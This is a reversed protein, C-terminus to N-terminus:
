PLDPVAPRGGGASRVTAGSPLVIVASVRDAVSRNRLSKRPLSIEGPSSPYSAARETHFAATSRRGASIARAASAPSTMVATRKARSCPRGTLMRPPPCEAAPKATASPASISSRDPMLDTLTSGAARVATAPGPASHLWSSAAAASHPSAVVPPTTPEVPMAPSVSPPPMPQSSRSAPSVHSLRSPASTTVASPFTRRALASVSGSRNPASRPPPPM